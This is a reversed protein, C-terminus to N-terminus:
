VVPQISRYPEVDLQPLSHSNRADRRNRESYWEDDSSFTYGPTQPSRLISLVLVVPGTAIIHSARPPRVAM